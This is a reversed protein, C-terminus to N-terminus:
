SKTAASVSLAPRHMKEWLSKRSIGLAEATESKRGRHADLAALITEREHRGMIQKLSEGPTYLVPAVIVELQSQGLLDPPLDGPFLTEDQGLAVAREMAHRLQRVNGPLPHNQLLIRVAPSLVKLPKKMQRCFQEIFLEALPLIDETRERLPPVDFHIVNLRYFLDQRFTGAAVEASLDRNTAAVIRVDARIERRGGLPQVVKEQIARLLKSQSVLPLEAIEDLFLTGGDALVFKGQRDEVAGTFSGRQHGFLESEVLNEPLAACNVRVLPRENRLSHLHLREVIREKGTGNEGTILVTSDLEAVTDVLELLHRMLASDAVIPDVQGPPNKLQLNEASLRKKETVDRSTLLTGLYEGEVNRVASYTNEFYRRNVKVTRNSSAVVGTKLSTLLERIGPHAKAPHITYILRGIIKDARVRRIKEAAPNCFRIVDEDDLFLVGEPMEQVIASFIEQRPRQLMPDEATM